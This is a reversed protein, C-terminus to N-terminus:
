PSSELWGLSTMSISFRLASLLAELLEADPSSSSLALSNLFFASLPLPMSKAAIARVEAATDVEGVEGDDMFDIGALLPGSMGTATYDGVTFLCPSSAHNIKDAKMTM